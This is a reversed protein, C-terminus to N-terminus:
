ELGARIADDLAGGWALPAAIKFRRGSIREPVIRIFHDKQGPEWPILWQGMSDMLEPTRDLATAQGKVMVSWAVGGNTDTGDTEMAVRQGLATALKTGPGTRFVLSGRDVKYNIPFIEPHDNVWVALRGVSVGRLLNWCDDLALVSTEPVESDKTM